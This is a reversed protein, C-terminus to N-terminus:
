FKDIRATLTDMAVVSAKTKSVDEFEQGIKHIENCNKIVSRGLDEDKKNFAKFKEHCLERHDRANCDIVNMKRKVDDVKNDVNRIETGKKVIKSELSNRM